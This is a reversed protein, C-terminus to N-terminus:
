KKKKKTANASRRIETHRLLLYLMPFFALNAHISIKKCDYYIKMETANVNANRSSYIELIKKLCDNAELSQLSIMVLLMDKLLWLWTGRKKLSNRCYIYSDYFETRFDLISIEPALAKNRPFFYDWADFLQCEMNNAENECGNEKDEENYKQLIHIIHNALICIQIRRQGQFTVYNGGLLCLMLARATLLIAKIEMNELGRGERTKTFYIENFFKILDHYSDENANDDCFLCLLLNRFHESLNPAITRMLNIPCRNFQNMHNGLGVAIFLENAVSGPISNKEM